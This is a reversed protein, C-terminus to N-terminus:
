LLPLLIRFDTWGPRSECEISGGHAEVIGQAVPLGLGSGGERGSVLPLFMREQMTPSVGPGDDIVDLALALRYGVHAIVVQRAVRTRLLITGRGQMAQAANRVLNLLAQVLQARDAELEPLSADYDREIVLGEAYEAQVLRRVQECVEHINIRAVARRGSGPALLRDVLQQLRDVEQIIVSTYERM